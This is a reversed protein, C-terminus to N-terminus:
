CKILQRFNLIQMVMKHKAFLGSIKANSKFKETFKSSIGFGILLNVNIEFEPKLFNNDEKRNLSNSLQTRKFVLKILSTPAM